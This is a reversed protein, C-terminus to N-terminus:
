FSSKIISVCMSFGFGEIWKLWKVAEVACDAYTIGPCLATNITPSKEELLHFVYHAFSPGDIIARTHNQEGTHGFDKSTTANAVKLRSLFRPIGM